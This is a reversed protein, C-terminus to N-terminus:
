SENTEKTTILYEHGIHLLRECYANLSVGTNAAGAVLAAQLDPDVRLNIRARQNAM